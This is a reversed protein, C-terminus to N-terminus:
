QRVIKGNKLLTIYRKMTEVADAKDVENKSCAFTVIIETSNNEVYRIPYMQTYMFSSQVNELFQDAIVVMMNITHNEIDYGNEINTNNLYFAAGNEPNIGRMWLNLTEKVFRNDKSKISIVEEINYDESDDIIKETVLTSTLEIASMLKGILISVNSDKLKGTTMFLPKNTIFKYEM